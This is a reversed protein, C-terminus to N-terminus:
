FGDPSNNGDGVVGVAPGGGGDVGTGDRGVPGVMAGRVVYEAEDFVCLVRVGDVDLQRLRLLGAFDITAFALM